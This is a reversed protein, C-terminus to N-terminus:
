HGGPREAARCHSLTFSEVPNESGLPSQQSCMHTMNELWSVLTVTTGYNCAYMCCEYQGGTEKANVFIFYLFKSTGTSQCYRKVCEM